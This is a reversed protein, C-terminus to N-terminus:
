IIKFHLTKELKQITGNPLRIHIDNIHIFDGISAKEILGMVKRGWVVGENVYKYPDCERPRYISISFREIM